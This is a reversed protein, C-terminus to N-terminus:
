GTDEFRMAKIHRDGHTPAHKYENTNSYLWIGSHEAGAVFRKIDVSDVSLSLPLKAPTLYM